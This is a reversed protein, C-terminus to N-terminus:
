KKARAQITTLVAERTRVEYYSPDVATKAVEANFKNRGVFDAMRGAVEDTKQFYDDYPIELLEMDPRNNVIFRLFRYQKEIQQKQIEMNPPLKNANFKVVRSYIIQEPDRVPMVVKYQGEPVDFLQQPMLCKVSKGDPIAFNALRSTEFSGYPNLKANISPEHEATVGGRDLMMMSM